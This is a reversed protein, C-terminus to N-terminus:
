AGADFWYLEGLARQRELDEAEQRLGERSEWEADLEREIALDEQFARACTAQRQRYRWAFARSIPTGDRWMAQGVFDLILDGVYQLLHMCM